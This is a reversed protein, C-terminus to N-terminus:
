QTTIGDINYMATNFCVYRVNCLLIEAVDVSLIRTTDNNRIMGNTPWYCESENM